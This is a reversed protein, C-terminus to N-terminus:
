SGSKKVVDSADLASYDAKLATGNFASAPLVAKIQGTAQDYKWAGTDAATVSSGGVFPNVPAKQLYPGFDSGTTSGEVDTTETLNAWLQALTPYNGNHQM